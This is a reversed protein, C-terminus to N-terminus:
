LLTGYLKHLRNLENNNNVHERYDNYFGRSLIILVLVVVVVVVVIPKSEMWVYLYSLTLSVESQEVVMIWLLM